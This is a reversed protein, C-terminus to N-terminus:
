RQVKENAGSQNVRPTIREAIEATRQWAESRDGRGSAILEGDVISLTDISLASADDDSSPLVIVAVPEGASQQWVVPCGLRAGAETIADVIGDLPLPVVGARASHLQVAVRNPSLTFLSATVTFVSGVSQDDVQHRVAITARSDDIQVRPQSFEAPLLDAHNKPLDVALWGNIEAATFSIQWHESMQSDSTLEAVKRLFARNGREHVQTGVALAESYFNPVHRWARLAAFAALSVVM